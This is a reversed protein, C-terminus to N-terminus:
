PKPKRARLARTPPKFEPVLQRSELTNHAALAWEGIQTRRVRLRGALAAAREQTVDALDRLGAIGALALEGAVARGVIAALPDADAVAFDGEVLLAVILEANTVDVLYANAATWSYDGVHRAGADGTYHILM